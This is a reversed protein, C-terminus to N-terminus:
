CKENSTGLDEPSDRIVYSVYKIPNPIFQSKFNSYKNKNNLYENELGEIAFGYNRSIVVVLDWVKLTKGMLCRSQYHSGTYFSNSACIAHQM